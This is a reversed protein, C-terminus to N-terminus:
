ADRPVVSDCKINYEKSDPTSLLTETEKIWAQPTIVRAYNKKEQLRPCLRCGTCWLKEVLGPCVKVCTCWSAVTRGQWAIFLKSLIVFVIVVTIIPAPDSPRTVPLAAPKLLALRLSSRM